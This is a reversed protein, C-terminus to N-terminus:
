VGYKLKKILLPLSLIIIMLLKWILFQNKTSAQFKIFKEKVKVKLFMYNVELIVIEQIHLSIQNPFISIGYIIDKYNEYQKEIKISLKSNNNNNINNENIINNNFKNELIKVKEKLIKVEECLLPILHNQNIDKKKIILNIDPIGVVGSNIKM